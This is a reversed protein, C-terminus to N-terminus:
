PRSPARDSGGSLSVAIAASAVHSTAPDGRLQGCPIATGHSGVACLRADFPRDARTGFQAVRDVSRRDAIKAIAADAVAGAGTLRAFRQHRRRGRCDRVRRAELAPRSEGVDAVEDEQDGQRLRHQSGRQTGEPLRHDQRRRAPRRPLAERRRGQLLLPWFRKRDGGLRSRLRPLRLGLVRPATKQDIMIEGTQGNPECPRHHVGRGRAAASERLKDSNRRCSLRGRSPTTVFEM